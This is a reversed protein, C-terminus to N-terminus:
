RLLLPRVGRSRDQSRCRDRDARGAMSRSSGSRGGRDLRRSASQDARASNTRLIPESLLGLLAASAIARRSWGLASGVTWLVLLYAVASLALLAACAAAWPLGALPTFLVAAFPPYTFVLEGHAGTPEAYPSAGELVAREM